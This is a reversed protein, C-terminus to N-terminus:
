PKTLHFLFFSFLPTDHGKSTHGIGIGGVGENKDELIVPGVTPQNRKSVLWSDLGSQKNVLYTNFHATHTTQIALGLDVYTSLIRTTFPISKGVQNIVCVCM